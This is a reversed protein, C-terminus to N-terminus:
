GASDNARFPKDNASEASFRGNDGQVLFSFPGESTERMGTTISYHSVWLGGGDQNSPDTRTAYIYCVNKNALFDFLEGATIDLTTGSDSEIIEILKAGSGSGGSGAVDEIKDIWEEVNSAGTNPDGGLKVYLKQLKDTIAM